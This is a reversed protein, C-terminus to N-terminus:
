NKQAKPQLYMYDQDESAFGDRAGYLNAGDAKTAEQGLMVQFNNNALSFTYDLM